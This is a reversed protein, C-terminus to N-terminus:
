CSRVIYASQQQIVTKCSSHLRVNNYVPQTPCYPVAHNTPHHQELSDRMHSADQQLNRGQSRIRLCVQWRSMICLAEASM